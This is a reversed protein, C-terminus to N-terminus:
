DLRLTITYIIVDGHRITSFKALAKARRKQWTESHLKKGKWTSSGEKVPTPTVAAVAKPTPEPQEPAYEPVEKVSGLTESVIDKTKSNSEQSSKDSGSYIGKKLVRIQRSSYTKKHQSGLGSSTASGRKRNDEKVKSKAKPKKPSKGPSLKAEKSDKGQPATVNVSVDKQSPPLTNDKVTFAWELKGDKKIRVGDAMCAVFKLKYLKGNSAVADLFASANQLDELEAGLAISLKELTPQFAKGLKAQAAHVQKAQQDQLHKLLMGATIKFLASVREKTMIFGINKTDCKSWAQEAAGEDMAFWMKSVGLKKAYNYANKGSKLTKKSQGNTGKGKTSSNGGM